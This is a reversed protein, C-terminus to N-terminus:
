DKSDFLEKAILDSSHLNNNKGLLLNEYFKVLYSSDEKIDLYNNFYNSRVLANRFYVSKDKFLTNDVNYGLSILYKEIFLATTRTNGERFPHVQWISSSFKTINNIVEVINMENYNKELEKSIDYELSESLTTCDGYVVSDNNLIKEHKSFDVKRFEGAFEYVDQFLFKHVYKLYDVSLEFKDENLLEVIRTSVFDCELENHNIENKKEKEIYYEKLEEKVQEITLNGLVNEELLKELYKSPKLNDVKQIGIAMDWELQKIYYSPKYEENYENVSSDLEKESM